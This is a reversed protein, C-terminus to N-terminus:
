RSGIMKRRPIFPKGTREKAPIYAMKTHRDCYPRPTSGSNIGCFKHPWDGVPWKCTTNTLDLLDLFLPEQEVDPNISASEQSSATVSSDTVEATLTELKPKPKAKAAFSRPSAGLYIGSLDDRKRGFVGAVANRTVEIGIEASLKSAISRLSDGQSWVSRILDVRESDDASKWSQINNM